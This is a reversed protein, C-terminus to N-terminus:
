AGVLKRVGYREAPHAKSLNPILVARAAQYADWEAADPLSPITILEGKDLGALAADVLEDADMTRSPDLDAPDRGSREWIETRTAGPLVAQFVVGKGALEHALAQTLYTVFAKTAGYVASGYEPVLGVVSSVNVVTGRGRATFAQAAAHALRAVATVNLQILKGIQAPQNDLFGGFLAAGANNVLLGIAPDDALKAELREIDAEDTLDARFVEVAVGYRASLDTAAAQLRAEDRAVLVLDHGRAALREAYVAGIGASAGTVLAAGQSHSQTM